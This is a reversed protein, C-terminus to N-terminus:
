SGPRESPISLTAGGHAQHTTVGRSIRMCVFFPHVVSTMTQRFHPVRFSAVASNQPPQPLKRSYEPSRTSSAAGENAEGTVADGAGAIPAPPAEAVDGITASGAGAM